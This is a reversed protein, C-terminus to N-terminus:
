ENARFLDEMEWLYNFNIKKLLESAEDYGDFQSLCDDRNEVAYCLWAYANAYAIAAAHDDRNHADRERILLMAAIVKMSDNM